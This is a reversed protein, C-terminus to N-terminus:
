SRGPRFLVLRGAEPGLQDWGVAVDFVAVSCAPFGHLMSRLADPDGAGDDLLHALSGVAPQHGVLAVVRAGSPVARLTELVVENGGSYLAPDHVVTADTRLAQEMAEWTARTREATSVLAHDPVVDRERLYAGLSEADRIGRATLARALDSSAFPEAKAHRVVVLRRGANM